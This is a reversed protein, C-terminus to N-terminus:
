YVLTMTQDAQVSALNELAKAEEEDQVDLDIIQLDIPTSSYVESVLGDMVIVVVKPNEM